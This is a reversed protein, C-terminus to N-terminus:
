LRAAAVKGQLVWVTQDGEKVGLSQFSVWVPALGLALCLSLALGLLVEILSFGSEPVARCRTLRTWSSTSISVADM